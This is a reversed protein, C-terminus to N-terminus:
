FPAEEAKREAYDQVEAIPKPRPKWGAKAIQDIISSAEKFSVDTDEGYKALIGAQKYSCQDAKSRKILTDLMQSAEWFTMDEVQADLLRFKKLAKKQGPTAIRGKHWGPERSPHVDFRDFPDVVTRTYKARAKVHARRLTDHEQLREQAEILEATMDVKEGSAKARRVAEEIVRQEYKGGLIDATSILKHRGSNGVFDLVTMRPKSSAAIIARRQEATLSDDPPVIPRTARGVAQAYLTRSKTPRAMAIVEIRPEDFGELFVGCGTLFQYKGRSYENLLLRRDDKPTKGHICIASGPNNDPRNIIEAATEAHQVSAAFLLTARDGAIQMTSSVVEHLVREREMIVALEGPAFDGQRTSIGSFDLDSVYVYEQHIPVLWGDDIADLISYEYAVTEVVQGLAAEDKRDPTATVGLMKLRPNGKMFYDIIRRYSPSTAHHFEDIFLADFENPNFKKMRYRYGRSGDICETCDELGNCICRERSNLTQVSAVVVNSEALLGHRAARYDAMEIEPVLGTMRESTDRPNWILEERHAMMIVRGKFNDALACMLVTKGTGTPSVVLTSRNTKLERLVADFQDQQYGQRLKM